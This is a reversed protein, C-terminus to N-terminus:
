TGSLDLREEVAFGLDRWEEALVEDIQKWFTATDDTDLPRALRVVGLDRLLQATAGRQYAADKHTLSVVVEAYARRCDHAHQLGAGDLDPLSTFRYRSDLEDREADALTLANKEILAARYHVLLAHGLGHELGDKFRARTAAELRPEGVAALGPSVVLLPNPTEFGWLLESLAFHRKGWLVLASSELSLGIDQPGLPRHKFADGRVSVRRQFAGPLNPYAHLV